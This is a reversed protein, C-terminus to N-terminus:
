KGAEKRYCTVYSDVVAESSFCQRAREFGARGMAAALQPSEALLRLKAALAKVDGTEVLYGTLGEEVLDRFGGVRTGVVPLGCYMDELTSIGFAEYHSPM